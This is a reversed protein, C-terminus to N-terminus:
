GEDAVEEEEEQELDLEDLAAALMKSDVFPTEV